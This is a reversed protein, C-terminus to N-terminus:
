NMQWFNSIPLFINFLNGSYLLLTFLLHTASPMEWCWCLELQIQGWWWWVFNPDQFCTFSARCVSKEEIIQHCNKLHFTKFCVEWPQRDGVSRIWACSSRSPPIMCLCSVAWHNCSMVLFDPYYPLFQKCKTGFIYVNKTDGTDFTNWAKLAFAGIAVFCVEYQLVTTSYPFRASAKRLILRPVPPWSPLM